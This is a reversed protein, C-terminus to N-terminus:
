ETEDETEGDQSKMDEGEIESSDTDEETETAESETDQMDQTDSTGETGDDQVGSDDGAGSVQTPSVTSQTEPVDPIELVESICTDTVFSNGSYLFLISTFSTKDIIEQVNGEYISPDVVVIERYYPVLFPILCNAYSDKFILLRDTTEATTKIDLLGYDGGLFLSYKDKGELKSKDYLTASKSDTDENIVLLEVSDKLNELAYITISDEYSKGYGSEESLSGAFDNNVVYPELKPAKSTDLEMAAALTEYGYYAGLTTWNKDTRYYIQEDKHKSLAKETDVWIIESGLSQRIEEFQKKQDRSIHYAPMKDSQINAANPVLMFYVPINYYAKALADISWINKEVNKKDPAAIEELLYEDRGKWIGNSRRRGFLTELSDNVATFFVEGVFRETFYEGLEDMYEGNLVAEIGPRPKEAKKDGLILNLLCMFALVGLLAFATIQKTYAKKKKEKQAKEM